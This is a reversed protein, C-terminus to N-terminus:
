IATACDGAGRTGSQRRGSKWLQGVNLRDCGIGNVRWILISNERQRSTYGGPFAPARRGVDASDDSRVHDIKGLRLYQCCLISLNLPDIDERANLM